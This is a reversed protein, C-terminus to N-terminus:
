PNTAKWEKTAAKIKDKNALYYARRWERAAEDKAEQDADM